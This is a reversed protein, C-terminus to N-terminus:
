FRILAFRDAVHVVLFAGYIESITVNKINFDITRKQNLVEGIPECEIQEIDKSM